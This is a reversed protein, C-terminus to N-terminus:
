EVVFELTGFSPISVPIPAVAIELKNSGSELEGTVEASLTVTYYGDSVLEAQGVEVLENTASFLLFKVNDIDDALYNEGKFTVFVDFVAEQGAIVRGPGDVAVEALMPEAFIAWKDALDIYNPNHVLTLTKEVLYVEDLIYPGTGVWFHGKDEYFAKLNEYRAVAEDATVYQSMTPAFPIYAEAIAEDLKAELIELSPGGIYSMWEVELEDSKNASYALEGAMEAKNSVAIMHWPAQGYGYEPWFLTRYPVVNAEADLYWTDSYYEMVLPDESVVRFGKFTSMFSQLVPAQSSDYIPSGEMGPAWTMIMSMMFDALTLPSGDHWTIDWLEEPYYVVVKRKATQGDPFKEASTIFVENVPDWDVLADEPVVNEDVFQLDVWDYTKDIPLGEQM